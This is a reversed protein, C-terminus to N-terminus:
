DAADRLLAASPGLMCLALDAAKPAFDAGILLAYNYKLSELQLGYLSKMRNLYQKNNDSDSDSNKDNDSRKSGDNDMTESAITVWDCWRRTHEECLSALLAAGEDCNKIDINISFPSSILKDLVTFKSNRSRILIVNNDYNVNEIRKFINYIYEDLHNFYKDYYAMNSILDAKPTYDIDLSYMDNKEVISIMFNPIDYDLSSMLNIDFQCLFPNGNMNEIVSYALWDIHHNDQFTELHGVLEDNCKWDNCSYSYPYGPKHSLVTNEKYTSLMEHINNAIKSLPSLASKTIIISNINSVFLVAILICCLLSPPGMTRATPLQVQLQCPLYTTNSKFLFYIFYPEPGPTLTAM